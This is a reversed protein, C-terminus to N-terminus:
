FRYQGTFALPILNTGVDAPGGFNMDSTAIVYAVDLNLLFKPTVYVDLGGGIRLAFSADTESIDFGYDDELHATLVGIGFMGYPQVRGSLPYGKANAFFSAALVDFVERGEAEIDFSAYYDLTGEVALYPNFRYGGRVEFGPAGSACVDVGAFDSVEDLDFNEFGYVFGGGVYGGPRGFDEDQATVGSARAFALTVGLVAAAIRM